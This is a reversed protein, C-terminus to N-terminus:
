SIIPNPTYIIKVKFNGEEPFRRTWVVESTEASTKILTFEVNYCGPVETFDTTWDLVLYSDVIEEEITGDSQEVDAEIIEIAGTVDIIRFLNLRQGKDWDRPTTNSYGRVVEVTKKSEDFGTVLLLEPSRVHPIEIVDGAIIQEFGINDAFKIVDDSATIATKLKAESWMSFKVSLEEDTLDFIGGCDEIAVRFPPDTSHQKIKFDACACEDIHCTPKPCPM